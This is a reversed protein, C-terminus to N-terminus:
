IYAVNYCLEKYSTDTCYKDEGHRHMLSYRFKLKLFTYLVYNMISCVNYDWVVIQYIVYWFYSHFCYYLPGSKWCLRWYHGPNGFTHKGGSITQRERSKRDSGSRASDLPPPLHPCNLLRRTGTSLVSQCLPHQEWRCDISRPLAVNEFSPFSKLSHTFQHIM